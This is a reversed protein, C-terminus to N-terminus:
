AVVELCLQDLLFGLLRIRLRYEDNTIGQSILRAALSEGVPSQTRQGRGKLDGCEQRCTSVGLVFRTVERDGTM